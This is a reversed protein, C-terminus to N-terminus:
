RPADKGKKEARKRKEKGRRREKEEKKRPAEEEGEGGAAAAAAGPVVGTKEGGGRGGSAAAAAGLAAVATKIANRWAKEFEQKSGLKVWMEVASKLYAPDRRWHQVLAPLSCVGKQRLELVLITM